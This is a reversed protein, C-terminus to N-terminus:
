TSECPLYKKYSNKIQNEAKNAHRSSYTDVKSILQMQISLQFIEDIM